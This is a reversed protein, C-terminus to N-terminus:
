PCPWRSASASGGTAWPIFVSVFTPKEREGREVSQASVRIACSGKRSTPRGFGASASASMTTM